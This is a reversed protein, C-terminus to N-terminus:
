WRHPERSRSLDPCPEWGLLLSATVWVGGQKRPATGPSEYLVKSSYQGAGPSPPPAVGQSVQMEGGRWSSGQSGQKQDPERGVPPLLSAGGGELSVGISRRVATGNPAHATDRQREFSSKLVSSCVGAWVASPVPAGPPTARASLRRPRRHLGPERLEHGVTNHRSGERHPGRALLRPLPSPARGEAGGDRSVLSGAKEERSVGTGAGADSERPQMELVTRFLKESTVTLFGIEANPHLGYLYPSEPPLNEDMYEHYGQLPAAQTM